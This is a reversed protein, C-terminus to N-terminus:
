YERAAVSRYLFTSWTSVAITGFYIANEVLPAISAWNTPGCCLFTSVVRLRGLCPVCCKGLVVDISKVSADSEPCMAKEWYPPM